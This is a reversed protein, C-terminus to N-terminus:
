KLKDAYCDSVSARKGRDKSVSRAIEQENEGNVKVTEVKDEDLSNRDISLCRGDARRLGLDPRPGDADLPALGLSDLQADKAPKGPRLSIGEGLVFLEEYSVADSIPGFVM